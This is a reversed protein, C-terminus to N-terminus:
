ICMGLPRIPFHLITGIPVLIIGQGIANRSRDVFTIILAILVAFSAKVIARILPVPPIKAKIRESFTKKLEINNTNPPMNISSDGSLRPHSNSTMDDDNNDQKFISPANLHDTTNNTSLEDLQASTAYSRKSTQSSLEIGEMMCVCDFSFFFCLISVKKGKLIPKIPSSLTCQHSEETETAAMGNCTACCILMTKEQQFNIM